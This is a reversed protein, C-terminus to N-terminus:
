VGLFFQPQNTEAFGNPLFPSASLLRPSVHTDVLLRGPIVPTGLQTPWRIQLVLAGAQVGIALSRFSPRSHKPISTKVLNFGPSLCEQSASSRRPTALLAQSDKQAWSQLGCVQAASSRWLGCSGLGNRWLCWRAGALECPAQMGRPAPVGLLRSAAILSQETNHGFASGGFALVLPACKRSAPVGLPRLTPRRFKRSWLSPVVCLLGLWFACKRPAPVGLPRLTPRFAHTSYVVELKSLQIHKRNSTNIIPVLARVLSILIM